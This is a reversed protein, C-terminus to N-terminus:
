SAYARACGVPRAPSWVGGRPPSSAAGARDPGPEGAEREDVGDVVEALEDREARVESLRGEVADIDIRTSCSTPVWLACLDILADDIYFGYVKVTESKNLSDIAAVAGPVNTTGTGWLAKTEPNARLLSQAAQRSSAFPDTYNATSM